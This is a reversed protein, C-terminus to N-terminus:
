TALSVIVSCNRVLALEIMGVEWVLAVVELRRLFFTHEPEVEFVMLHRPPVGVINLRVVELVKVAAKPAGVIDCTVFHM